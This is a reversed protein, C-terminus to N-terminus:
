TNVIEDFFGEEELVHPPLKMIAQLAAEGVLARKALGEIPITTSAPNGAETSETGSARKTIMDLLIPLGVKAGEVLGKKGIRLGAKVIDIFADASEEDGMSEQDQSMVSELGKIFAETTRDGRQDIEGSYAINLRFPEARPTEFAESGAAGKQNYNQLSSLAIRLAPEMMAGLVHPAVKKITPVADMVYDKMDSFISEQHDPHLDMNQIATLTAEALIAREMAGRQAESPDFSEADASEALKGAANLAMGALAGIPAGLPGLALPLGMELAGGIIPAGIKLADKLIDFFGEENFETGRRRRPRNSSAQPVALTRAAASSQTSADGSTQDGRRPRFASANGPVTPNSMKVHGSAADNGSRVPVIYLADDAIHADFGALYDDFPNGYRGIVSASNFTGGYVHVGISDLKSQRLVPSGSNGGFTDIQYELMTDAQTALDYKTHLSRGRKTTEDKLDGPYGVVGLVYEGSEPTETYVIPSIGTFPKQVQMFSVDFNKAGRGRLWGQTTVIRKVHQFQVHGEKISQNGKYGIYAKVETARGLKHGWDYSCHGATVFVDPKVLWGTGMSWKGQEQFEYHIFLKVVSRYKGGPMFHQDDVKTREDKEGVISENIGNTMDLMFASEPSPPTEATPKLDWIGALTQHADAFKANLNLAAEQINRSKAVPRELTAMKSHLIDESAEHGGPFAMRMKAAMSLHGKQDNLWGCTSGSAHQPIVVAGAKTKTPQLLGYRSSLAHV